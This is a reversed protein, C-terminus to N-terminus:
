HRGRQGAPRLHLGGTELVSDDQAKEDLLENPRVHEGHRRGSKAPRIAQRATRTASLGTGSGGSHDRPGQRGDQYGTEQETM